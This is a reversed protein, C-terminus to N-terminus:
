YKDDHITEGLIILDTLSSSFSPSNNRKRRWFKIYWVTTIKNVRKIVGRRNFYEDNQSM